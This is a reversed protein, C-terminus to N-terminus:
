NVPNITVPIDQRTSLDLGDRAIITLSTEGNWNELPRIMLQSAENVAAHLGDGDVIYNLRGGEPDSFHDNLTTIVAVDADETMEIDPIELEYVPARNVDVVNIRIAVLDRERFNDQVRIVPVYVGADDFDTQWTFHGFNHWRVSISAGREIIGEDSLFSFRLEDNDWPAIVDADEVVIDFSILDGESANIEEPADVFNPRDNVPNVTVEFSLETTWDRRTRHQPNKTLALQHSLCSTRSEVSEQRDNVSRLSRVPATDREEMFGDDAVVTVTTVGNWNADPEIYLRNEDDVEIGLHGDDALAMFGLEDNDPDSFIDDLDTIFIMGADEDMEFDPIERVIEPPMNDPAHARVPIIYTGNEMEDNMANCIILMNTEYIGFGDPNFTVTIDTDNRPELVFETPEVSFGIDDEFTIDEVELTATGASEINVVIEPHENNGVIGFDILEIYGNEGSWEPFLLPVGEVHMLVNVVVDPDEPDNSLIQIDAEYDGEILGDPNIIVDIDIDSDAELEGETPELVLWRIERIGDDYIRIDGDAYSAWINEGDHVLSLPTGIDDVGFNVVDDSDVCTWEDRDVAIQFIRNDDTYTVWLPADGHASVWELGRVNANDHHEVHNYIVGIQEGVENDETIEYVHIRATINFEQAFILQEDADATLKTVNHWLNVAGINDGNEDWRNVRANGLSVPIYVLGNLYCGVNSSGCNFRIVEEFEEWNEDHTIAFAIRNDTNIMWMRENDPDWAICRVSQNMDFSHIVDGADDRRPANLGGTSRLSRTIEDRDDDVDVIDSEWRLTGEGENAINFSFDENQDDPMDVRIEQPDVVIRPPAVVEARVPIELRHDENSNSFITLTAEYVGTEESNFTLIVVQEGEPDLVFEVDDISYEDSDIEIDDVELATTGINMVNLMVTAEDDSFVEGFDILDPYGYYENWQVEIIPVGTVNIRVNVTGVVNEDDVSIFLIDAEYIGEILGETNVLIDVGMRNDPEIEGEDPDIQMWDVERENVIEVSFHFAEDGSNSIYIRYTAREGVVLDAHIQQPDLDIPPPRRCVAIMRITLDEEDPDNSHITFTGEYEGPEDAEFIIILVGEGDAEIELDADMSWVDDGEITIEDIELLETGKNLLRIPFEYPGGNYLDPDYMANFDMVSEEVNVNDDEDAVFGYDEDWVLDIDPSGEVEVEVSLEVRPDVPDNSNIIIYADLDDPYGDTFDVRVTIDGGGENPEIVGESPEIELWETAEIYFRLPSGGNNAIDFATEGVDESVRIEINVPDIIIEPPDFSEAQMQIVMEEEDPDNSRIILSGEFEAIEETEFIITLVAEEEPAISMEDQDVSFVQDGDIAIEAIELDANGENLITIPFEFPYGAWVENDYLANYDLVSQETDVNDDEDAVFGYDEDWRLDIVPVGTVHLLVYVRYEEDENDTSSFVIDAEHDGEYLGETTIIVDFELDGNPDLEGDGGFQIWEGENEYAIEISFRFPEDGRNTMNIQCVRQDGTVLDLEISQPQLVISPDGFDIEIQCLGYGYENDQGEDGADEAHDILWDRLEENTMDHASLVLAAAGAVGPAASSTGFFERDYVFSTVGDVGSIDPKIRDYYTPGRSSFAELTPPNNEWGRHYVAAVAFNAEALAPITVSGAVTRYGLDHSTFLTFDVGDAGGNNQVMLGYYGDAETRYSIWETPQDDGDQENTSEAVQVWEEDENFYVVYLDYNVDSNPFDDWALSAWINAGENMNAIRDPRSGFHNVFVHDAFMHVNEDDDQDDFEARYHRQGQNGGSDIYFIGSEVAESVKDCVPDQGQFYDGMAMPFSLSMTIVDVEEEILYDIANEMDADTFVKALYFDADPVFDYVIEACAAGHVSGDEIDENTFNRITPDAPLEGEDQGDSLRNFGMDVIAVKVGEGTHDEDHFVDGGILELGESTVDTIMRRPRHVLMVDRMDAAFSGLKGVPVRVIIFHESKSVIEVNSTTFYLNNPTSRKRLSLEVTIRDDRFDIDHAQAFARASKDGKTQYINLFKVLATELKTYSSKVQTLKPMSSLSYSKAPLPELTLNSDDVFAYSVSAILLALILVTLKKM